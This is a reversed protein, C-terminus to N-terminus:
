QNEVTAAQRREARNTSSGNRSVANTSAEVVIAIRPYDQLLFDGRTREVMDHARHLM